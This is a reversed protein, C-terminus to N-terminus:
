LQDIADNKAVQSELLVSYTADLPESEAQRCCVCRVCWMVCLLGLLSVAVPLLIPHKHYAKHILHKTKSLVHGHGHHDAHHGHHGHHSQHDGYHGHHGHHNGHHEQHVGHHDGHHHGHHKHGHQKHEDDDNDDDASQDSGLEGGAKLVSTAAPARDTTVVLKNKAEVTQKGPKLPEGFEDVSLRLQQEKTYARIVYSGMDKTGAPAEVDGTLYGPTAEGKLDNTGEKEPAELPQVPPKEPQPEEASQQLYWGGNAKPCWLGSPKQFCGNEDPKRKGHGLVDWTKELIDNCKNSGLKRNLLLCKYVGAWERDRICM